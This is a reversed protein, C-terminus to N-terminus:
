LKEITDLAISPHYHVSMRDERLGIDTVYGTM